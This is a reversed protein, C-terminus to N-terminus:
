SGVVGGLCQEQYGDSLLVFAELWEDLWADLLDNMHQEAENDPRDKGNHGHWEFWWQAEAKFAEIEDEICEAPSRRGSRERYQAVHMTEHILVAALAPAGADRLEDSVVIRNRAPSYYGYGDASGFVVDTEAAIVMAAAAKGLASEGGRLATQYARALAPDIHQPPAGYRACQERYHPSLRLWLGLSDNILWSLENNAWEELQTPYAKGEEGFMELWWQAQSVEQNIARAMCEDWSQSREAENYLGAAPWILTHALAEPSENRYQENIIILNRFSSYLSVGELPGFQATAGSQMFLTYIREGTPAARLAEFAQALTPDLPDWAARESNRRKELGDPGHIWTWYGDTFTTQNDAKGWVLLGGTTRQFNDGSVNYQENERCQGVIAPILDYMELFGFRFACDAATPPRTARPRATPATASQTASATPRTDSLPIRLPQGVYIKRPDALQNYAALTQLDVGFRRALSYLTDGAQVVYVYERLPTPTPKAERTPLPTPAPTPRTIIPQTPPTPPLAADEARGCAAIGVALALVFWVIRKM